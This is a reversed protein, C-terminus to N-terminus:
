PKRGSKAQHGVFARVDNPRFRLLRGVRVSPLEGKEASKYVWSKSARLYRAVEKVGWLSDSGPSQEQGDM